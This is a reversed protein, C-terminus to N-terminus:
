RSTAERCFAHLWVVADEVSHDRFRPEEMSIQVMCISCIYPKLVDHLEIKPSIQIVSTSSRKRRVSPPLNCFRSIEETVKNISKMVDKHSFRIFAYGDNELNIQRTRDSDFNGIHSKGDVEIIVKKKISVFDVIFPVMVVQFQFELEPLKQTLNTLLLRESSTPNDRHEQARRLLLKYGSLKRYRSM